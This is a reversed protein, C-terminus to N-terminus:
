GVNPSGSEKMADLGVARRARTHRCAFAENLFRLGGGNLPFDLKIHAAFVIWNIPTPM